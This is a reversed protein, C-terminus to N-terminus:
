NGFSHPSPKHVNNKANCASLLPLKAAAAGKTKRLPHMFSLCFVSFAPLQV